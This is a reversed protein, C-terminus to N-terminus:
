LFMGHLITNLNAPICDFSDKLYDKLKLEDTGVHSGILLSVSSRICNLTGYSAGEHFKKM